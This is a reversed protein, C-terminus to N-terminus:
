GEVVHKIDAWVNIFERQADPYTELWGDLRYFDEPLKKLEQIPMLHCRGTNCQVAHQMNYAWADWYSEPVSKKISHVWEILWQKCSASIM